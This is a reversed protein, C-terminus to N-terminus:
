RGWTIAQASHSKSYSSSRAGVIGVRILSVASLYACTAGGLLYAACLLGTVIWLAINM